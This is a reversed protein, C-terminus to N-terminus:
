AAWEQRYDPHDSWISALAAMTGCPWGDGDCRNCWGDPEEDVPEHLEVIRRFAECQRLVRDELDDLDGGGWDYVWRSAAAEDEAIRALVFEALTM